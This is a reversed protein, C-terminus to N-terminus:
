KDTQTHTHKDAQRRTHKNTQRYTHKDRQRDTHKHTQRYTQRSMLSMRAHGTWNSCIGNYIDKNQQRAMAMCVGKEM